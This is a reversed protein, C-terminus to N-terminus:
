AEMFKYKSYLENLQNLINECGYQTTFEEVNEIFVMQPIKRPNESAQSIPAETAAM